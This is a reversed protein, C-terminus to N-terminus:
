LAIGARSQLRCRTTAPMPSYGADTIGARPGLRAVKSLRRAGPLFRSSAFAAKV